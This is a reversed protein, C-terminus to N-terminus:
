VIKKYHPVIIYQGIYLTDDMHNSLKIEEILENVNYYEVTYYSSAIDWLTDGEKIQIIEVCKKSNRCDSATVKKANCYIGLFIAIGILIGIFSLIFKATLQKSKM